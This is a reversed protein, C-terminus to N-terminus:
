IKGLDQLVELITAKLEDKPTEAYLFMEGIGALLWNANVNLENILKIILGVSLQESGAEINLLKEEPMNVFQAMDFTSFGKNIRIQKLRYVYTYEGSFTGLSSQQSDFKVKFYAEIKEIESPKLDIGALEKRRLAAPDVDLARALDAKVIRAQTKEKLQEITQSINM